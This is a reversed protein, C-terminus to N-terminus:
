LLLEIIYLFKALFSITGLQMLGYLELCFLVKCSRVFGLLIMCSWSIGFLAMLLEVFGFLVMWSWVLGYLFLIVM